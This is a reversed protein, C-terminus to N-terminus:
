FLKFTNLKILTHQLILLNHRHQGSNLSAKHFTNSTRFRPRPGTPHTFQPERPPRQLMCQPPPHMRTTIPLPIIGFLFKMKEVLKQLLDTIYNHHQEINNKKTLNPAYEKRYEHERSLNSPTQEYRM